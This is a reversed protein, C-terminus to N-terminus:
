GRPSMEYECVDLNLDTCWTMTSVTSDQMKSNYSSWLIGFEQSSCCSILSDDSTDGQPKKSWLNLVVCKEVSSKRYQQSELRARWSDFFTGWTHKGCTFELSVCTVYLFRSSFSKKWVFLKVFVHLKSASQFNKRNYLLGNGLPYSNSTVHTLRPFFSCRTGITRSTESPLKLRRWKM